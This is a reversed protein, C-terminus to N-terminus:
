GHRGLRFLVLYIVAAGGACVAHPAQSLGESLLIAALLGHVTALALHCYGHHIQARGLHTQLTQSPTDQEEARMFTKPRHTNQSM